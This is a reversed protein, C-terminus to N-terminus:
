FELWTASLLAQAWDLDVARQVERVVWEQDDPKGVDGYLHAFLEGTSSEEWKCGERFTGAFPIQVIFVREATGYFRALTKPVQTATSLHMFGSQVDLPTILPQSSALPVPPPDSLIKYVFSPSEIM